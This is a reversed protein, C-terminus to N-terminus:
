EAKATRLRHSARVDSLAATVVADRGQALHQYRMAATSTSHGLRNMLEPLTAGIQAAYVAATHRLDHFRLDPRSAKGRASFYNKALTSPKMHKTPDEVSPFVLADPGIAVNALHKKVMPMLDLPIGVDRIGADSKPKKVIVESWAPRDTTRPHNVLVASRRIRLVGDKTDIDHRRLEILEGYRLGCWAALQVLLQLREPMAETIKVLEDLTAPHIVHRRPTQGAGKIRAPNIALYGDDVATNLIARFLSYAQSRRTPRGKATQRYWNDVDEREILRLPRNEFSPLIFRTLIDAYLATTRPSLPEGRVLRNELWRNSYDGFSISVTARAAGSSWHGSNVEVVREAIWANAYKKGSKGVFTKSVRKGDPYTFRARVNGSDLESTTGKAARGM